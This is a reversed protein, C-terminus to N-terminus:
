LSVQQRRHRSSKADPMVQAQALWEPTPAGLLKLTWGSMSRVQDGLTPRHTIWADCRKLNIWHNFSPGLFHGSKDMPVGCLVVHTAQLQELAIKIAYLGSLGSPSYDDVIKLRHPRGIRGRNSWFTSCIPYRKQTRQEIWRSWHEPHLTVWHYHESGTWFVGADNICLVADPQVCFATVAAIDDCVKRGGGIVLALM